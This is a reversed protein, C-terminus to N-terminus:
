KSGVYQRPVRRGLACTIEYSITGTLRAIEEADIKLGDQEGMLIVRDDLKVNPVDTVDIITWDMSVRGVIPAFVGNVIVRGLNSLRRTYGDHYGIPVTAILSDRATTYTRSYGLTEGKNVRKLQAIRSSVSLVPKLAPKEIEAPLVDGGLGYLVGGLRVMNGRSKEHAVAGPSNALDKYVLRFGSEEFIRVAGYFRRIQENTYDNEALNDAAAFHTMLGEVRLNKYRKLEAAFERVEDWRVGIRGMGTDIKVHIDATANRNQAARDLSEAQTIQSIVPTLNYDLLLKHQENWFGGLCLVPKKIGSRRLEVGEEPLAVALWDINEAELRRACEIAGHGYADAKVVAMYELNAGVLKKVSHFNFALNGLNIEAWTPRRENFELM